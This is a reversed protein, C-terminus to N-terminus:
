KKKVLWEVTKEEAKEIGMKTLVSALQSLTNSGSHCTNTQEKEFLHTCLQGAANGPRMSQKVDRWDYGIAKELELRRQELRKKEANLSKISRIKNM